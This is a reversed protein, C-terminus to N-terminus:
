PAVLTVERVGWRSWEPYEGGAVFGIVNPGKANLM